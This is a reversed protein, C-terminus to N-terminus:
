ASSGWDKPVLPRFGSLRDAEAQVRAALGGRKLAAHVVNERGFALSIEDSSLIGLILPRRTRREAAQLLKGRDSPGSGSAILLCAIDERPDKLVAEVKTFGMIIEGARRAFGLLDVIRRALMADLQDALDAPAKVVSKFGKAFGGKIAKGIAAREAGVWVGRGPLVQSLDPTVIGDPSLAFRIMRSAPHREGSAACRRTPGLEADLEPPDDEADHDM